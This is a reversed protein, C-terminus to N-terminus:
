RNLLRRPQHALLRAAPVRDAVVGLVVGVEPVQGRGGLLRLDRAGGRRQLVRTAAGLSKRGGYPENLADVSEIRRALRISVTRHVTSVFSKLLGPVLRIM